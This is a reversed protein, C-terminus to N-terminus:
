QGTILDLYVQLRHPLLKGTLPNQYCSGGPTDTALDHPLHGLEGRFTHDQYILRLSGQVIDAQHHSTLPRIYFGIRNHAINTHTFAHLLQELLM